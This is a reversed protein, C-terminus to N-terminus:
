ILPLLYDKALETIEKALEVTAANRDDPTVEAMKEITTIFLRM